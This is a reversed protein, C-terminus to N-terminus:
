SVLQSGIVREEVGPPLARCVKMIRLAFKKTRAQLNMVRQTM